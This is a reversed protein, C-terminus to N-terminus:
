LAHHSRQGHPIAVYENGVTCSERVHIPSSSIAIVSRTYFSRKEGIPSVVATRALVYQHDSFSRLVKGVDSNVSMTEASSVYTCVGGCVSLTKM